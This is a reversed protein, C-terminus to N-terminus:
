AARRLWDRVKQVLNRREGRATDTDVAECEMAPEASGDLWPLAVDSQTPDVSPTNVAEPMKTEVPTNAAVPIEIEVPTETEVLTKAEVPTTSAPIDHAVLPRQDGVTVASTV